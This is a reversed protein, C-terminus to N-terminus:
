ILLPNMDGMASSIFSGNQTDENINTWHKPRNLPSVRGETSPWDLQMDLMSYGDYIFAPPAQINNFNFNLDQPIYNYELYNDNQNSNDEDKRLRLARPSLPDPSRLWDGGTFTADNYWRLPTSLQEPLIISSINDLNTEAVSNHNDVRNCYTKLGVDPNAVPMGQESGKRKFFFVNKTLDKSKQNDSQAFQAKRMEKVICHLKSSMAWYPGMLKLFNENISLNMKAEEAIKIDSSYIDNLHITTTAFIPYLIFPCMFQCGYQTIDSAISSVFKAAASCREASARMFEVHCDAVEDNQLPAINPRNLVVIASYYLLHISAFTSGLGDAILQSMRERTYTYHPSLSSYWDELEKELITFQSNPDWTPLADYPKSRNVHQCVRGLLATVSVLSASMGFNTLTLRVDQKIQGVKLCEDISPNELPHELNWVSENCPLRVDCDDEDILTPRGLACASFRDLLFCSWFTRRKIEKQIFTYEPSSKSSKSESTDEEVKHLGLEQAMRVAMGSYMWARPGKGIGYMHVSLLLLGQVHEVSPNDFTEFLYENAIAAFPEGSLYPPRRIISPNTSYRASVACIAFVLFPAVKNQRLHKMFTAKHFMPMQIDIHRFFCAALHEVIDVPPLGNRSRIVATISPNISDGDMSNSSESASSHNHNESSDCIMPLDINCHVFLEKMNRFGPKAASKGFFILEDSEDDDNAISGSKDENYFQEHTTQQELQPFINIFATQSQSQQDDTNHSANNSTYNNIPIESKPEVNDINLRPKKVSKKDEVDDDIRQEKLPQLLKEMQQLRKELSEVLGVRPGRKRTSPLYTCTTGLRTCNNCSPKDGSCKVKKKRCADCAQTLRRRKSPQTEASNNAFNNDIGVTTATLYVSTDM